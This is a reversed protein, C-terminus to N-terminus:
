SAYQPSVGYQAATLEPNKKKAAEFGAVFQAPTKGACKLAHTFAQDSEAFRQVKATEAEASTQTKAPDKFREGFHVLKPGAKLGALMRDFPTAEVEMPKGDKGQESFKHVATADQMLLLEDLTPRQAPLVQGTQVLTDLEAKVRAKKQAALTDETFKKVTAMGAELKKQAADMAQQKAALEAQAKIQAKQAESYKMTVSTPHKPPLQVPLAAPNPAPPQDGMKEGPLSCYKEMMAKAWGAARRAGDANTIAPMDDYQDEPPLEDPNPDLDLNPDDLPQEDPNPDDAMLAPDPPTGDDNRQPQDSPELESDGQQLSGSVRLVEALEADEMQALVDQSYGMQALQQLMQDRNMKVVESFCAWCGPCDARQTATRFKLVVRRYSAFREANKAPLPIDALSKVQPIDGGLFAVRRLMKGEGPVGEPPSDYIEASVTRYRKGRILRAVQPPVDAFDAFLTNGERYVNEVWAAAPLDSRELYTQDEEHGLVAPVRLLPRAGTSYAKFNAVMQDLDAASYAKGRHVGAAFIEAGTITSGGESFREAHQRLSLHGIPHSGPELIAAAREAPAIGQRGELGAGTVQGGRRAAHIAADQAARDGIGKSALHERVRTLPALNSKGGHAKVADVVHQSSDGAAPTSAPAVAPTPASGGQLAKHAAVAQALAARTEPTGARANADSAARVRAASAKLQQKTPCPGPTGGHGGCYRALEAYVALDRGAFHRAPQCSHCTCPAVPM